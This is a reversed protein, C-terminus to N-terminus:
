LSLEQGCTGSGGDDFTVQSVQLSNTALEFWSKARLHETEENQWKWKQQLTRQEGSCFLRKNGEDLAQEGVKEEKWDEGDMNQRGVM